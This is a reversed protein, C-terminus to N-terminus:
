ELGVYRKIRRTASPCGFAFLAWELGLAFCLCMISFLIWKLRIQGILTLQGTNGKMGFASGFAFAFMFLSAVSSVAVRLWPAALLMQVICRSAGRQVGLLAAFLLIGLGCQPLFFLWSEAPILGVLRGLCGILTTALGVAGIALSTYACRVGLEVPRLLFLGQDSPTSIPLTTHRGAPSAASTPKAASSKFPKRCDCCVLACDENDRWCFPCTKM